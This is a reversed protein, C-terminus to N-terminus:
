QMMPPPLSEYEDPDLEILSTGSQRIQRVEALLAVIGAESRIRFRNEDAKLALNLVSVAAEKQMSRLKMEDPHGPIVGLDLIEELTQVAKKGVRGFQKAQELVENEPRLGHRATEAAAEGAEDWHGAEVDPQETDGAVGSGQVSGTESGLGDGGHRMGRDSVGGSLGHGAGPQVTAEGVPGDGDEVRLSAAELSVEGHQVPSGWLGKGSPVERLPLGPDDSRRGVGLAANLLEQPDGGRAPKRGDM